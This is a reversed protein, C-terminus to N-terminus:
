LTGSKETLDANQILNVAENKSIVSNICWYDATESNLIAIDSLSVSMMLLDHCRNYVNRQFKFGKDLFYYYHCIDCEKWESKKNVNIGESINIRDYYLMKINNIIWLPMWRLFATSLM